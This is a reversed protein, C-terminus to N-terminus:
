FVWLSCTVAANSTLSLTLQPTQNADQNDFLTAAANLRVPFWGILKRGLKHNVITTGNVLKVQELLQGKVLENSIIPDLAQAWVTTMQQLPLKQPLM